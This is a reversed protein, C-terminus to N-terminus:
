GVWRNGKLTIVNSSEPEIILAGNQVILRLGKEVADRFSFDHGEADFLHVSMVGNLDIDEVILPRGGPSFRTISLRM